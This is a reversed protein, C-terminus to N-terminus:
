KVELYHMLDNAKLIELVEDYNLVYDAMDNASSRRLKSEAICAGVGLYSTLRDLTQQHKENPLLDHEYNIDLYDFGVLAKQEWDSFANLKKLRDPISVADVKVRDKGKKKHDLGKVHYQDRAEAVLSSMAQRLKNKRNLFIIKWGASFESRMFDIAEEPRYSHFMTLDYIKIRYGYVPAKRLKILGRKYWVPFLIRIPMSAGFIEGDCHIEPSRNLLDILLTSGTRGQAFVIFKTKPEAYSKFASLAYIRFQNIPHRWRKKYYLYSLFSRAKTLM